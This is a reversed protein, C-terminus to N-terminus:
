PNTTNRKRRHDILRENLAIAEELKAVKESLSDDYREKVIANFDSAAMGVEEKVRQAIEARLDKEAQQRTLSDCAEQVCGELISLVADSYIIESM